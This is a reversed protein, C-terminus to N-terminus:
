LLVNGIYRPYEDALPVKVIAHTYGQPVDPFASSLLEVAGLADKDHLCLNLNATQSESLSSGEIYHKPIYNLAKLQLSLDTSISVATLSRGFHLTTLM